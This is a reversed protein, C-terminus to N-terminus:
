KVGKKMKDIQASGDLLTAARKTKHWDGSKEASLM